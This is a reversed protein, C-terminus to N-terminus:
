RAEPYVCMCVEFVAIYLRTFIPVHGDELGLVFDHLCLLVFRGVDMNFSNPTYQTDFGLRAAARGLGVLGGM